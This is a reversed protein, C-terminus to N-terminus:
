RMADGMEAQVKAMKRQEAGIRSKLKDASIAGRAHDRYFGRINAQHAQIMQSAEYVRMARAHDVDHPKLKVGAAYAAAIWPDYQRGVPDRQGSLARHMQVADWGLWGPAVSGWVHKGVQVGREGLDDTEAWIQERFFNNKNFAVEFATAIPGGITLWSPVGFDGLAGTNTDFIDAGPMWRSIDLFLPDGHESEFPTRIRRQLGIGTGPIGAWTLGQDRKAMTGREHEEDEGNMAYVLANVAYGLSVLKAFKWPKHVLTEAILPTVRYSYSLFPLVTHRLANVWPARIDYNVFQDRALKASIAADQGRDRFRMFMALRFIEDEFQYARTMGRDIRQLQKWMRNLVDMKKVDGGDAAADELDKVIRELVPDFTERALEQDVYGSGFAGELAAENYLQGKSAYERVARALDGLSIDALDMLIFNSLVNNLHVKPSRTTKNHKWFRLVDNWMQGFESQWYGSQMRDLETLDRFIEARVWKGAIAGWKRKDTGPIRTDPMQRWEGFTADNEPRVWEPNGAIDQFFRGRAIDHALLQFTKVVNYEVDTIEGMAEREDKTWDRRLFYRGDRQRSARYTGDYALGAILDDSPRVNSAAPWYVVRNRGRLVIWETGAMNQRVPDRVARPLDRLLRNSNPVKIQKGRPRLEDGIIAARRRRRKDAWRALAHRQRTEEHRLYSRHLYEGLHEEYVDKSLLGLEVMELGLADVKERIPKAMDRFRQAVDGEAQGTVIEWLRTRDGSKLGAAEIAEVIEKALMLISAEDRAARQDRALYEEDLGYRDILGNRAAQIFPDMWTFKGGAHPRWDKIAAALKDNAKRGPIWQGLEDIGGMVTFPARFLRDIPQRFGNGAPDRIKAMPRWPARMVADAYAAQQAARRWDTGVPRRSKMRRAAFAIMADLDARTFALRFGLSRLFRRLAAYARMMPPRAVGEEAMHAVIEDALESPSLNEGEYSKLIRDRIAAVVPDSDALKLVDALIGGYADGFAVRMAYHGVIEHALVREAQARDGIEDAVLYVTESAPDYVGAIAADEAFSDLVHAPLAERTAVTVVDPGNAMSRFRGGMGDLVRAWAGLEGATREVKPRDSMRPEPDTWVSDESVEYERGHRDTVKVKPKAAEEAEKERSTAAIGAELSAIRERMDAIEADGEFRRGVGEELRKLKAEDDAVQAQRRDINDQHNSLTNEASQIHGAAGTGRITTIGAAMRLGLQVIVDPVWEGEYFTRTSKTTVVLPFGGIEGIREGVLAQPAELTSTGAGADRQKARAGAIINELQRAADQRTDFERAGLKMRFADGKTPVIKDIDGRMADVFAQGSRIAQRTRVINERDSSLRQEFVKKRRVAKDLADRLKSRELIRPDKATLGQLQEHHGVEGIDDMVLEPNGEFFSRIGRGKRAMMGWMNEDYTGVATYDDVEVERNMNGQRVIRGVRQEDRAPYWQPSLNHIKYLRRQANVGTGMARSSGIMVAVDGNNMGTFLRRRAEDSKYDRLFAIEKDAIGERRLVGRIYNVADFGSRAEYGEDLFLMQTAGGHFAPEAKYGDDDVEYFPHNRTAHYTEAIRRLATNLKDAPDNEAGPEVMRVHVAALRGDGLIKIIVDSGKPPPFPLRKSAEARRKLVPAYRQYSPSRIPVVSRRNGKLKPRILYRSVSDSLESDMFSHVMNSLARTNDFETFRSVMQYTGMLTAEQDTVVRGFTGAWDDFSEVGAARLADNQFFRQLTYLEGMTNTVPTGSMFVYGRGPNIMDLYRTKMFLDFSQGSGDTDVGKLRTKQTAFFLKRFEHAEDVVLMDVGLEEFSYTQDTKRDLQKRIKEELRQLAKQLMARTTRDGDDKAAEFGRRLSDLMATTERQTYEVSMPIKGFGSHTIVVGDLDTNGVDAVFQKRASGHFRTDDAVMIKAGPYQALWEQSFQFLMPNPVVIMPKRVLGLRRLDMVAGISTSTKGSGVAHNIYTSGATIIRAIGRRQHPRWKWGATVGPTTLYDGTYKRLVNNNFKQNYITLLREARAEDTWLWEAFATQLADVKSQAFKSGEQSVVTRRPNDATPAHRNMNAPRNNIALDLLRKPRIGILGQIDALAQELDAPETDDAHQERVFEEVAKQEVSWAEDAADFDVTWSGAVANHTARPGRANMVEKMFDAIYREEVWTSGLKARIETPTYPVPLAAELADANRRYRSDSLAREQAVRLKDRVPGSLYEESHTWAGTEPDQYVNEGLSEITEEVDRGWTEAVRDIDFAGDRNIVTMMADAASEIRPEEQRAFVNRYFAPGKIGVDNEDDWREISALRYSEPDMKFPDLNPYRVSVSPPTESPDFYDGEDFAMGLEDRVAQRLKGVVTPSKGAQYHPFDDFSGELTEIGEDQLLIRKNIRAREHAAVSPKRETRLPRTLYGHTAVFSDHVANLEARAVKGADEDFAMNAATARRLADRMGVLDRVLAKHSKPMDRLAGSAIRRAAPQGRGDRFQWLEGDRVYYSGEKTEPADLDVVEARAEGRAPPVYVKEPLRELTEALLTPLDDGPRPRVGYRGRAVLTDMVPEGLIMEPHKSFYKNISVTEPPRRGTPDAVEVGEVELWAMDGKPEDPLRKRFILIDTTVETGANQLFATNPLRIGALLDAREGLWERARADIKNMTGASTVFAMVGGPRLSDMTKAFFYDHLLFGPYRSDGVRVDAFPPNGIAADFTDAPMTSRTFDEHRMTWKPYLNAAIDATIGDMEIGVFRSRGAFDGPMMGAFHGVGVGPEVVKGGDFGLRRLADWMFSIVDESTYHAYQISREATRYEEETLLSRIRPGIQAFERGFRGRLDPFAPKLGGWGVYQALTEQEAPTAPRGDMRLKKLVEIAAVNGRAKEMRGRSEFTRLQGPDFRWNSQAAVDRAAAGEDARQRANRGAPREPRGAPREPAEAPKEDTRPVPRGGDEGRGATGEGAGRPAPEVPGPAAGSRETGAPGPVDDQVTGRDADYWRDIEASESMDAAWPPRIERAAEYWDRLYPKVRDGLAEVARAAFDAFKVAGLKMEAFAYRGGAVFIEPDVGVYATSGRGMEDLKKKLAELADDRDKRAKELAEGTLNEPTDPTMNTRWEPEVQPTRVAARKGPEVDAEAEQRAKLKRQLAAEFRAEMDDTQPLVGGQVELELRDTEERIVGEMYGQTVDEPVGADRRLKPGWEEVTLDLLEGADAGEALQGRLEGRIRGAVDALAKERAATDEAAPAAEADPRGSTRVKYQGIGSTGVVETIKAEWPKGRRPKVTIKDGERPAGGTTIISAGWEKVKRGERELATPTGEFSRIDPAPEPEPQRQDAADLIRKSWHRELVEQNADDMSRWTQRALTEAQRENFGAQRAAGARAWTTMDRWWRSTDTPSPTREPAPEPEPEPRAPFDLVEGRDAALDDFMRGVFAASQDRDLSFDEVLYRTWTEINAQRAAALANPDGASEALDELMGEEITDRYEGTVEQEPPPPTYDDDTDPTEDVVERPGPRPPEFDPPAVADGRSFEGFEEDVPQDTYGRPQGTETVTLGAGRMRAIDTELGRRATEDPSGETRDVADDLKGAIPKTTDGDNLWTKFTDFPVETIWTRRSPGSGDDFAADYDREVSEVDRYGLFAKHEDFDQGKPEHQDVVFVTPAETDDGVYVDVQDGDAGETRRVYGYTAPMEVSWETGDQATGSRTSGKANEISVDLGRFSIHGKQYNGAEKQADTPEADAEAAATDVAEPSPVGPITRPLLALRGDRVVPDHPTGTAKRRAMAGARAAQMTPYTVERGDRGRYTRAPAEARAAAETGHFRGAATVTGDGAVEGVVAYAREGDRTTAFVDGPEAPADAAKGVMRYEGPAIPPDEILPPQGAEPAPPPLGGEVPRWMGDTDQYMDIAEGNDGVVRTTPAGQPPAVPAPPSALPGEDPTADEYDERPPRETDPARRGRGRVFPYVAAQLIAAAIAAPEGAEPVNDWLPSDPSYEREAVNRILEGANEAVYESAAAGTLRGSFRNLLWDAAPRRVREPVRRLIFAFPMLEVLGSAVGWKAALDTADSETLGAEPNERVFRRADEITEGAGYGAAMPGAVGIAGTRTAGRSATRAGLKAAGKVVAGGAGGGGVFQAMSGLAAAVQGSMTEGFEPDVPLRALDRLNKAAKVLPNAAIEPFPDPEEEPQEPPRGLGLDDAVDRKQAQTMSLRGPNGASRPRALFGLNSPPPAPRRPSPAVAEGPTPASVPPPPASVPPPAALPPRPESVPQGAAVLARQLEPPGGRLADRGRPHETFFRVLAAKQEPTGELLLNTADAISNRAAEAM